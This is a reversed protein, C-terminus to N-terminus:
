HLWGTRNSSWNKSQDQLMTVQRSNALLPDYDTTLGEHDTVQRADLAFM